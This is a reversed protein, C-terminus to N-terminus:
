QTTPEIGARHLNLELKVLGLFISVRRCSYALCFFFALSLTSRTGSPLFSAAVWGVLGLEVMLILLVALSEAVPAYHSIISALSPALLM